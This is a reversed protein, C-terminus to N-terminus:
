VIYLSLLHYKCLNDVLPHDLGAHPTLTCKHQSLCIIHYTTINILLMRFMAKTAPTSIIFIHIFCCFVILSSEINSIFFTKRRTKYSGLQQSCTFPNMRVVSCATCRKVVICQQRRYIIWKFFYFHLSINDSLPKVRMARYTLWKIHLHLLSWRRMLPTRFRKPIFIKYYDNDWFLEVKLKSRSNNLM